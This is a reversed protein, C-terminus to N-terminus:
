RLKPAKPGMKKIDILSEKDLIMPGSGAASIRMGIIKKNEQLPKLISLVKNQHEKLTIIHANPGADFTYGAINKGEKRNLEEVADMIEYSTADLYRIPPRTSLALAHFENSDAMICEALTNFDREKFANITRKMRNEASEYRSAFLPNTEVTQRMGARSSVKKRSESVIAIMDIVEPWYRADFLQEAYSDKGDKRSGKHWVVIGGFISRCASGSGQRAIISLEKPSLNLELALNLVYVLTAIGSASSALGSAAPFNNQSVVLFKADSGADKRLKDLIWLRERIEKENVDQKEGDIYLKDEKLRQSFLVSTTTNVADASLTMSLSSNCPLILKEDKKGWYKIFAINPSGQATFVKDLVVM